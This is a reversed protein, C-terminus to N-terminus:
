GERPLFELESTRLTLDLDPGAGGRCIGEVRVGTPHVIVPKLADPLAGSDGWVRAAPKEVTM